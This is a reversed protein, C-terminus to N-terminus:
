PSLTYSARRLDCCISHWHSHRQKPARRMAEVLALPDVGCVCGSSERSAVYCAPHEWGAMTSEPRWHVTWAPYAADLRECIALVGAPWGLRAATVRRNSWVLKPGIPMLATM